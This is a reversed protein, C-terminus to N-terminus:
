EPISFVQGPYILDPNRIRDRNAEFIRVYLTGDGYNDRSIGWLTYGPQVTIAQVLETQGETAQALVEEDERKFPTEVRSTVNGEADVEDIRLTYVGTDVEPLDSRWSGDEDIQSTIVPANDIYVRVFGEGAGRGSLQVEGETSYTIADLAVVSMVEPSADQPQAPQLVKVGEDDSLLVATNQTATPDAAPDANETGADATEESVDGGADEKTAVVEPAAVPTIIIDGQSYLVEGTEPSTMALSLVRVDPDPKVDVFQVFEGNGEPIFTSLVEEDLRISTKWGPEARGAVLMQGDPELRFTSVSPPLPLSPESQDAASTEPESAPTDPEVDAQETASESSSEPLPQVDLEPAAATEPDGQLPAFVNTLYLGAFIAIVAGCLLGLAWGGVSGTWKSM